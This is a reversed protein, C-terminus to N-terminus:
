ESEPLAVTDWKGIPCRQEAWTVKVDMNCGCEPRNCRGSEPDFWEKCGECIDLRRRAEQESVVPLGHRIHSAAANIFNWVRRAFQPPSKVPNRGLRNWCVRCNNPDGPAGPGAIDCHEDDCRIDTRGDCLCYRRTMSYGDRYPNRWLIGSV